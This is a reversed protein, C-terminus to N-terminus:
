DCVIGSSACFVWRQHNKRPRVNEIYNIIRIYFKTGKDILIGIRNTQHASEFRM